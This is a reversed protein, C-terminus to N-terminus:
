ESRGPLRARSSAGSNGMNAGGEQRYPSSPSNGTVDPRLGPLKNATPGYASTMSFRGSASLLLAAAPTTIAVKGANGLFRRRNDSSPEDTM